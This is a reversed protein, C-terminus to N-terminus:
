CCCLSSLFSTCVLLVPVIYPTMLRECAEILCGLLKASEERSKSDMSYKLDTLLQLLHRRLAPLVYAPNHDALRGAMSIALKRVEFAEDSLAIFIGRLSDAQALFEEFSRNQQLSVFVAKRVGVDSDAVAAVLLKELIEEILVRRRRSGVGTTRGSRTNVLHPTTTASLVVCSSHEVLHCCCVAAERRTVADEDELYTAVVERAFELLEHGQLNFTTLTHLALQTLAPGTCEVVPVTIPSTAPRVLALGGRTTRYPAKALVFSISDLLKEQVTPLLVPLNSSIKELATVLTPSLGALFMSDIVGRVHEEMKPGIAEALSGICAVAQLSPRGRRPAIAERLMVMIVPLYQHLEGGVASAMEGLAMFGSEREDPKKMVTLLHDMCIQLYSSVFRDRIFHAIRPLLATISRRVLPNRHEHYKFVIDAVEKYRSMMFEGTNRLLEGVALLSGHISEVTAKPGLGDQTSEFLRYHWQVRWRTERNEIVCLCARLAEVARERVQLKQDRLAFWVAEIFEKVHVNFVTPANMAMEKLILVAAFRHSEVREGQLWALAIKVQSEVVDATLAGGTSALHGLAVSAAVITDPDQKSEFIKQLFSAFKAIKTASEGLQVSILEDIARVAGLNEVADSSEVLASIREYLSDMFRTFAEGTLDRAEEEVHKALNLASGERPPPSRTCLDVLLRRLTDPSKQLAM